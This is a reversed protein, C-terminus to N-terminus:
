WYSDKTHINDPTDCSLPRIWNENYIKEAQNDWRSGKIGFLLQTTGGLHVAMKGAGKIHAGLPISYSGCGIIAIDYEKKDVETKM